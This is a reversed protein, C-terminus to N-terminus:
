GEADIGKGRHYGVSFYIGQVRNDSDLLGALHCDDPTTSEQLIAAVEEVVQTHDFTSPVSHPRQEMIVISSSHRGDPVEM